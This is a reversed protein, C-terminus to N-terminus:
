HGRPKSEGPFSTNYQDSHITGKPESFDQLDQSVEIKEAKKPESKIAKKTVEFDKPTKEGSM